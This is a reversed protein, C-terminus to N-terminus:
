CVPEFAPDFKCLVVVNQIYLIRSMKKAAKKDSISYQITMGFAYEAIEPFFERLVWGQTLKTKAEDATMNLYKPPIVDEPKVEEQRSNAWTDVAVNVAWGRTGIKNPYLKKGKVSDLGGHKYLYAVAKNASKGVTKNTVDKFPHSKSKSKAMAVTPTLLVLVLAVVIVKIINKRMTM